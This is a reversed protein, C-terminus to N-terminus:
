EAGDSSDILAMPETGNGEACRPRSLDAAGREWDRQVTRETVELTEAIEQESYGGFYRMQVVQALRSDAQELAELAEHVALVTEEADPLARWSRQIVHAASWRRRAEARHARARQQRDGFADGPFRLRLVRPPGRCAAGPACSGCIRSTCWAPPIWFRIAGGTACGHMRWGTCNPTLPRLCRMAAQADGAQMRGLLETLETM